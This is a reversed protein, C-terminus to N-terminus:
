ESRKAKEEGGNLLQSADPCLWLLSNQEIGEVDELLRTGFNSPSRVVVILRLLSELSCPLSHLQPALLYSVSACLSLELHMHVCACECGGGVLKACPSRPSEVSVM